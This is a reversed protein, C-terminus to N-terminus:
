PFATESVAVTDQLNELLVSMDDPLPAEFAMTEGSVPHELTMRHAHLMQRGVSQLSHLISPTNKFNRFVKASSYTVDGVIPHHMSACHVRIQHTRGTKLIVALLTLGAFRKEVRWLTLAHRGKDGQVVAMRTRDTPHRGIPLEIEGSESRVNGYVLALYEKHITRQEFQRCLRIHANSNKAVVIVGSTDKDLRHVIGPRVENGTGEIDPCHYLLANAMTGTMHGPAPHVVMGAKKNVVIIDRDEFLINIDIPEAQLTTSEPLPIRGMIRDGPKMCYSSKKRCDNVLISGNRILANVRNRSCGDLHATVVCDLRSGLDNMGVILSFFKGEGPMEEKFFDASCFRKNPLLSNNKL